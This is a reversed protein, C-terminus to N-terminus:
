SVQTGNLKVFFFVGFFERPRKRFTSRAIPNSGVVKENAVLREVLQVVGAFNGREQPRRQKEPPSARLTEENKRVEKSNYRVKPNQFPVVGRKRTRDDDDDDNLSLFAWRFNPKM